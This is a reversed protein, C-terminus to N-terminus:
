PHFLTKKPAIKAPSQLATRKAIVQFALDFIRVSFSPYILTGKRM